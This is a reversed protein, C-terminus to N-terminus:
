LLFIPSLFEIVLTEVTVMFCLWPQDVPLLSYQLYSVPYHCISLSVIVFISVEDETIDRSIQMHASGPGLDKKQPILFCKLIVDDSTKLELDEYHLGFESPLPVDSNAYILM